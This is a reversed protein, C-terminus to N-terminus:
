ITWKKSASCNDPWWNIDRCVRFHAYQYSGDPNSRAESVKKASGNGGRNYLLRHAYGDGWWEVYVSDGDAKTDSLTCTIQLHDDHVLTGWSVFSCSAKAGTTSKTYTPSSAASASTATLVAAAGAATVGTAIRLLNKM